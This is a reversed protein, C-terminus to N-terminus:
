YPCYSLDSVEILLDAYEILERQRREAIRISTTEKRESDTAAARILSLRLSHAAEFSAATSKDNIFRYGM